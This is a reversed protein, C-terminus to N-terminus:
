LDRRECDGLEGLLRLVRHWDVLVRERRQAVHHARPELILRELEDAERGLHDGLGGLDDRDHQHPLHDVALGVRGPLIADVHQQRHAHREEREALGRVGRGRPLLIAVGGDADEQKEAIEEEVAEGRVVLANILSPHGSQGASM